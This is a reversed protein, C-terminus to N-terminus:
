IKTRVYIYLCQYRYLDFAICTHIYYKFDDGDISSVCYNNGNYEKNASANRGDRNHMRSTTIWVQM